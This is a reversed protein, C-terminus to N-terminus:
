VNRKKPKAVKIGVVEFYGPAIVENDIECLYEKHMLM